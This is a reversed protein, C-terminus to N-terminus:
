GFVIIGKSTKICGTVWSFSDKEGPYVNYGNEKLININDFNPRGQSTILYEGALVEVDQIIPPLNHHYGDTLYSKYIIDEDKEIFRLKNILEKM